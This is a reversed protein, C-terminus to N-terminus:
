FSTKISARVKQIFGKIDSLDKNKVEIIIKEPNKLIILVFFLKENYFLAIASFLFGIFLFKVFDLSFGILLSIFAIVGFFLNIRKTNRHKLEIFAVESLLIERDIPKKIILKDETLRGINTEDNTTIKHDIDNRKNKM